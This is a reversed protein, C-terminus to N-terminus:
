VLSQSPQKSIKVFQGRKKLFIIEAEAEAAWCSKRMKQATDKVNSSTIDGGPQVYFFLPYDHVLVALDIYYLPRCISSCDLDLALRVWICVCLRWLGCNKITWIRSKLTNNQLRKLNSKSGSPYRIKSKKIMDIIKRNELTAEFCYLHTKISLKAGM